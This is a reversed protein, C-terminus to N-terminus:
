LFFLSVTLRLLPLIRDGGDSWDLVRPWSGPM